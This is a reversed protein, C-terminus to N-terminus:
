LLPQMSWKKKTMGTKTLVTHWIDVTHQVAASFVYGVIESVKEENKDKYAGELKSFAFEYTQTAINWFYKTSLNINKPKPRVILVKKYLREIDREVKNHLKSLSAFGLRSYDIKHGVHVPTCLDAVHHCTVGLFMGLNELFDDEGDGEEYSDIFGISGEAYNLARTICGHNIPNDSDVYCRHVLQKQKSTLSEIEWMIKFHDSLTAGAEIGGWRPYLIHRENQRLFALALNAVLCHSKGNM